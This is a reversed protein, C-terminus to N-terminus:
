QTKTYNHKIYPYSLHFTCGRDYYKIFDTSVFSKHVNFYLEVDFLPRKNQPKISTQRAERGDYSSLSHYFQSRYERVPSAFNTRAFGLTDKNRMHDNARITKSNGWSFANTSDSM